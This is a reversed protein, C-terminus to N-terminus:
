APSTDERIRESCLRAQRGEAGAPGARGQGRPRTTESFLPARGRGPAASRSRRGKGQKGGAPAGV